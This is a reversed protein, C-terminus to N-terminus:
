EVAAALKFCGILGEMMISEIAFGLAIMPLFIAVKTM